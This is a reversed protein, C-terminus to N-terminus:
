AGGDVIRELAARMEFDVFDGLAIQRDFPLARFHRRRKGCERKRGVASRGDERAVDVPAVCDTPLRVELDVAEVRAREDEGLRRDPKRAVHLCLADHLPALPGGRERADVELPRNLLRRQSELAREAHRAVATEERGPKIQLEPDVGHVQVAFHLDGVALLAEVDLRRDVRGVEAPRNGPRGAAGFSVEMELSTRGERNQVDVDARRVQREGVVGELVQAKFAADCLTLFHHPVDRERSRVERNRAHREGFRVGTQAALFSLVVQREGPRARGHAAFHLKRAVEKAVGRGPFPADRARGKLRGRAVHLEGLAHRKAILVCRLGQAHARVTPPVFAGLHTKGARGVHVQAAFLGEGHPKRELAKIEAVQAVFQGAPRKEFADDLTRRVERDRRTERANRLTAHRKFGFPELSRDLHGFLVEHESEVGEGHRALQAFLANREVPEEVDGSVASDRPRGRHRLREAFLFQVPGQPHFVERDRHHIRKKGRAFLGLAHDVAIEM